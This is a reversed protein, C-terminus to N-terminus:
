LTLTNSLASEVIYVICNCALIQRPRIAFCCYVMNGCPWGGVRHVKTVCFVCVLSSLLVLWAAASSTFGSATGAFRPSCPDQYFVRYTRILATLGNGPPVRISLGCVLRVIPYEQSKSRVAPLPSCVECVTSFTLEFIPMRHIRVVFLVSSYGFM